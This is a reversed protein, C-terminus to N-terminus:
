LGTLGELWPLIAKQRPKNSQKNVNCKEWSIYLLADSNQASNLNSKSDALANRVSLFDLDKSQLNYQCVM